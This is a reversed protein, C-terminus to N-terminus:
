RQGPTGAPSCRCGPAPGAAAGPFGPITTDAILRGKGIVILHDATLAMEAMLHSSVFVTRGEAALSRLLTRVWIIGEPLDRWPVRARYRYIIGDIVLAVSSNSSGTL